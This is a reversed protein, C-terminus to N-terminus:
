PQMAAARTRAAVSRLVLVAPSVREVEVDVEAPLGHQLPLSTAQMRDLALEVRIQGEQPDGAVSSVSASASGYQTWPFADLRIRARQGTRVRGLATSAQFFAVVKLRGEPVITCIRDGQALVSGITLSSVEAITGSVPARVTRQAIDHGLRESRALAEGRLGELAAIERKLRAIQALRDQERVEFDQVLRHSAFEASRAEHDREEATKKARLADLESILGGQHLKSLREAEDAAFAAVAATQRVMLEREALAAEAGRLEEELAREEAALEQRLLEIQSTAPALRVEEENRALHEAVADLELLVDGAAVQKGVLVSLSVVRGGVPAGVPHRERDVELRASATTTYLSIRALVFWSLWLAGVTLTLILFALNLRPQDTRLRQQSRSFSGM